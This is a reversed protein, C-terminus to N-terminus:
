VSLRIADFYAGSFYSHGVIFIDYKITVDGGLNTQDIHAKLYHKCSILWHSLLQQSSTQITLEFEAFDGQLRVKDVTFFHLANNDLLSLEYILEDM